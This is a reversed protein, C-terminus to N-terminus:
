LAALFLTVAMVVNAVAIGKIMMRNHKASKVDEECTSTTHLNVGLLVAVMMPLNIALLIVAIISVITEMKKKVKFVAVSAVMNIHRINKTLAYSKMESIRHCSLKIMTVTMYMTVQKHGDAVLHTCIYVSEM